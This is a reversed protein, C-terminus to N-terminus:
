EKQKLTYTTKNKDWTLSRQTQCLKYFFAGIDVVDFLKTLNLIFHRILSKTYTQLTSTLLNEIFKTMCLFTQILVLGFLRWILAPPTNVVSVSPVPMGKLSNVMKCHKGVFDEFSKHKKLRLM